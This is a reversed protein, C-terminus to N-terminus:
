PVRLLARLTLYSSWSDLAASGFTSEVRCAAYINKDVELYQNPRLDFHHRPESQFQTDLGVANVSWSAMGNAHWLVKRDTLPTAQTPDMSNLDNEQAADELFLAAGYASLHFTGNSSFSSPMFTWDGVLRKVLVRQNAQTDALDTGFIIPALSLDISTFDSFVIIGTVWALSQNGSRFRRVSFRRRNRSAM